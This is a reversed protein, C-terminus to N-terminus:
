TGQEQAHCTYLYKKLKESVSSQHFLSLLTDSASNVPLNPVLSRELISSSISSYYELIKFTELVLVLVARRDRININISLDSIVTM